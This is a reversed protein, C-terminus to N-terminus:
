LSGAVRRALCVSNTLFTLSTMWSVCLMFKVAYPNNKPELQLRAYCKILVGHPKTIHTIMWDGCYGCTGSAETRLVRITEICNQKEELACIVEVGRCLIEMEEQAKQSIAPLSLMCQRQEAPHACCHVSLGESFTSTASLRRLHEISSCASQTHM